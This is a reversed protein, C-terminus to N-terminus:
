ADRQFEREWTATIKFNAEVGASAIVFGASANMKLGFEVEIKQLGIGKLKDIVAAAAPTVQDLADEFTVDAKQPKKWLDRLAVPQTGLPEPEEVEATITGGNAMDYKVLRKM